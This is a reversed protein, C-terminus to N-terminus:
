IILRHLCVVLDIPLRDCGLQFPITKKAESFSLARNSSPIAVAASNTEPDFTRPTDIVGSIPQHVVPTCCGNARTVRLALGTNGTSDEAPDRGVRKQQCCSQAACCECGCDSKGAHCRVVRCVPEYHGDACICGASVSLSNLFVLPVMALVLIRRPNDRIWRFEPWKLM